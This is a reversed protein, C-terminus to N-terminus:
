SNPSQNRRRSAVPTRYDYLLEPLTPVLNPPPWQEPFLEVWRIGMGALQRGAILNETKRITLQGAGCSRLIDLPTRGDPMVLGKNTAQAFVDLLVERVNNHRRAGGGVEVNSDPHFKLIINRYAQYCQFFDLHTPYRNEGPGLVSKLGGGQLKIEIRAVTGFSKNKTEQLVKDYTKIQMGSGVHYVANAIGNRSWERQKTRCSPHGMSSMALIVDSAPFGSVTIQLALDVRSFEYGAGANSIDPAQAWQELFEEMVLFASQLREPKTILSSNKGYLIRPLSCEVMVVSDGVVGMRLGSPKHFFLLGWRRDSGVTFSSTKFGWQDDDKVRQKTQLYPLHLRRPSSLNIRVTDIM